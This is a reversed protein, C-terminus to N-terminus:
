PQYGVQVLIAQGRSVMVGRGPPFEQGPRLSPRARTQEEVDGVSGPQLVLVTRNRKLQTMWGSFARELTGPDCAAVVRVADSRVLPELHM